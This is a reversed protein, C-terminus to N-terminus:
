TWRGIGFDGVAFDRAAFRHAGPQAFGSVAGPVAQGRVPRATGAATPPEVQEGLGAAGSREAM